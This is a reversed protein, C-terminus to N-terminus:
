KAVIFRQPIALGKAIDKVVHRLFLEYRSIHKRRFQRRQRANGPPNNM